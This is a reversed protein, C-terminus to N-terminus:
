RCGTEWCKRNGSSGTPAKRSGPTQKDSTLPIFAGPVVRGGHLIPTCTGLSWESTHESRELTGTPDLWERVPTAQEHVAKGGNGTGLERVSSEPNVM